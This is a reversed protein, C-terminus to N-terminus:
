SKERPPLPPQQINAAVWESSAKALSSAASALSVLVKNGLIIAPGMTESLSQEPQAAASSTAAPAPSKEDPAKFTVSGDGKVAGAAAAAKADHLSHVASKTGAMLVARRIGMADFYVVWVKEGIRAVDRAVNGAEAGYKHDLYDAASRGTAGIVLKGSKAASETLTGVAKLVASTFKLGRERKSGPKTSKSELQTAVAEGVKSAVAVAGNVISKTVTLAADSVNKATAINERATPTFVWPEKAKPTTPIMSAAAAEIGQALLSAGQVM